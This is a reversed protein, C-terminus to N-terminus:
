KHSNYTWSARGIARTAYPARADAVILAQCHCRGAEGRRDKASGSPDTNSLEDYTTVGGDALISLDTARHRQAAVTTPPVSEPAKSKPRPTTPPSRRARKNYKM